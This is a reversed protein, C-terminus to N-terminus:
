VYECRISLPPVSGTDSEDQAQAILRLQEMARMRDAAKFEEGDGFAIEEYARRIRGLIRGSARALIQRELLAQAEPDGALLRYAQARGIGTRQAAGPLDFSAAFQGVFESEKQTM